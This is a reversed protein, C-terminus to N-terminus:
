QGSLQQFLEKIKKIYITLIEEGEEDINYLRGFRQDESHSPVERIWHLEQMGVLLKRAKIHKIGVKRILETIPVPDLTFALIELIEMCIEFEDRRSRVM